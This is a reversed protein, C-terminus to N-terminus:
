LARFQHDKPHWPYLGISIYQVSFLHTCYLCIHVSDTYMRVPMFHYYDYYLSYDSYSSLDLEFYLLQSSMFGNISWYDETQWNFDVWWEVTGASSVTSGLSKTSSKGSRMMAMLDESRLSFRSQVGLFISFFVTNQFNMALLEFMEPAVLVLAIYPKRGLNAHFVLSAPAFSDQSCPSSKCKAPTCFMGQHRFCFCRLAHATGFGGLGWQVNLYQVWGLFFWTLIPNFLLNKQSLAWIARDIDINKMKLLDCWLESYWHMCHSNNVCVFQTSEFVHSPNQIVLDDTLTRKRWMWCEFFPMLWSQGLLAASRMKRGDLTLHSCSFDM